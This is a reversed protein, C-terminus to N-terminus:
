SKGKRKGKVNVKRSNERINLIKGNTNERHSTQTKLKEHTKGNSKNEWKNGMQKGM